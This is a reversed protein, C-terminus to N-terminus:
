KEEINVDSPYSNNMLNKSQNISIKFYHTNQDHLFFIAIKREDLFYIWMVLFVTLPGQFSLILDASLTVCLLLRFLKANM